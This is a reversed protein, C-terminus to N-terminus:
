CILVRQHQHGHKAIPAREIRQKLAARLHIAGSPRRQVIGGAAPLKLQDLDQNILMRENVGLGWVARRWQHHRRSHAREGYDLVEYVLTSVRRKSVLSPQVGGCIELPVALTL